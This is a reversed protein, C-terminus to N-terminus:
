DGYHVRRELIVFQIAAVIATVVFLGISMVSGEGLTLPDQSNFIKYVLVETSGAPGGGTLVDIQAFAQLGFITLAVSLFLLTPAILPLTIRFFSRFPGFGDLRAAEYLDEPVAQLGALTIIFTLGLNQWIGTLAVAYIAKDPDSLDFIWPESVYGISPELLVFFIVATVATSSAITSSFIVQFIRMGRLQRNAVVALAIGLVIGVPVTLLVFQTTIWLGERFEEGTLVDVYQSPGEWRQDTGTRNQRHLGLWIIRWLPYFAFAAFLLLAPALLGYAAMAERARASRRM